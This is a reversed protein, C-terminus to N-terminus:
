NEFSSYPIQFTMIYDNMYYGNGIHVDVEEVVKFQMRDYFTKAKNFRNVNLSLSKGNQKKVESIVNELLSKGAGIGQITPLVYIKHLKFEHPEIESYSAFGIPTNGDYMLIFVCGEEEMQRKLSAESYMMELMYNIQEESLIERYTQPWVQLNLEQILPIDSTNAFRFKFNAM